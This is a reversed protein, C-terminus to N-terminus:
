RREFFVAVGIRLIPQPLGQSAPGSRKKQYDAIKSLVSPKKFSWDIKEFLLAKSAEEM